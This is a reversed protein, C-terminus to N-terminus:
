RQTLDVKEGWPTGAFPSSSYIHNLIARLRRDGWARDIQELIRVEEQSLSSPQFLAARREYMYQRDGFVTLAQRELIHPTTELARYFEPFWPGHDYSIYEAGTITKGLACAAEADALYVLKLLKTRNLHGSHRYVFFALCDRLKDLSLM